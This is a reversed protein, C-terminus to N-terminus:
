LGSRANRIKLDFLQLAEQQDPIPGQFIRCSYFCGKGDHRTRKDMPCMQNDKRYKIGYITDKGEDRTDQPWLHTGEDPWMKKLRSCLGWTAQTDKSGLTTDDFFRLEAGNAISDRFLVLAEFYQHHTLFHHSM